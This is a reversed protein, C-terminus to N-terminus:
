DANTAHRGTRQSQKLHGADKFSKLFHMGLGSEAAAHILREMSCDFFNQMAMAGCLLFGANRNDMNGIKATVAAVEAGSIYFRGKSFCIDEM